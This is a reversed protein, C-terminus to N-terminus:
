LVVLSHNHYKKTMDDLLRILDNQIEELSKDEIDEYNNAMENNNTLQTYVEYDKLSATEIDIEHLYSSDNLSENVDISPESMKKTTHELIEDTDETTGDGHWTDKITKTSPHFYPETLNNEVSKTKETVNVFIVSAKPIGTTGDENSINSDKTSLANRFSPTTKFVRYISTVSDLEPVDITALVAKQANVTTQQNVLTTYDSTNNLKGRGSSSSNNIHLEFKTSSNEESIETTFYNQIIEKEDNKLPTSTLTVLNTHYPETPYKTNREDIKKNTKKQFNSFWFPIVTNKM